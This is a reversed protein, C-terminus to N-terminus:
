VVEEHARVHQKRSSCTGRSQIAPFGSGLGVAWHLSDQAWPWQFEEALMGRKSALTEGTSRTHTCVAYPGKSPPLLCTHPWVQILLRGPNVFWIEKTRKSFHGLREFAQWAQWFVSHCTFLLDNQSHSYPLCRLETIVTRVTVAIEHKEM